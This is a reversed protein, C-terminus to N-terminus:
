NGVTFLTRAQRCERFGFSLFHMVTFEASVFFRPLFSGSGSILRRRGMRVDVAITLHV